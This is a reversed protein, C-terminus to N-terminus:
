LIISVPILYNPSLIFKRHMICTKYNNRYEFDIELDIKRNEKIGLSPASIYLLDPNLKCIVWVYAVGAPVAPQNV